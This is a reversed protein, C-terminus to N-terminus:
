IISMWGMYREPGHIKLTELSNDYGNPNLRKFQHSEQM